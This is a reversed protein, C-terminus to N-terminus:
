HFMEKIIGVPISCYHLLLPVEAIAFNESKTKVTRKNLIFASAKQQAFHHGPDSQVSMDNGM